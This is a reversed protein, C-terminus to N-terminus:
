YKRGLLPPLQGDIRFRKVRVIAPSPQLTSPLCPVERGESKPLLCRGDCDVLLGQAELFPFGLILAPGKGHLVYAPTSFSHTQLTFDLSVIGLVPEVVGNGYRVQERTMTHQDWIGLKKALSFQIFTVSAGIDVLAMIKQTGVFIPVHLSKKAPRQVTDCTTTGSITQHSM